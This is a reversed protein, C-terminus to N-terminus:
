DEGDAISMLLDWNKAPQVLLAKAASDGDVLAAVAETLEDLSRWSIVPKGNLIVQELVVRREPDHRQLIRLLRLALDADGSLAQECAFILAAHNLHSRMNERDSWGRKPLSVPKLSIVWPGLETIEEEDIRDSYVVIRNKKVGEVFQRVAVKFNEPNLVMHHALLLFSVVLACVCVACVGVWGVVKSRVTVGTAQPSIYGNCTRPTLKARARPREGLLSGAVAAGSGVDAGTGM